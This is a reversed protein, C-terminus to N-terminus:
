VQKEGIATPRRDVAKHLRAPLVSFGQLVNNWALEPEGVDIREVNAVLSELLVEMEMRALHMGACGHPGHGWGVHDRPNRRVDFRDPDTYRREDRNASAFLVLVRSGKPIPVGDAVYDQAAYRTFSRIPSALRVLENVVGPILEPEGRLAAFADPTTGLRWLMQGTALITTDLAPAVYDIVMAQAEEPSLGGADAAQFLRAAWGDPALTERRLGYVYRRLDLMRPLSAFWRANIGGLINFTAAAWRLMNARGAANLGVLEAVVTVPLHSAFRAMADFEGGSALEAVLANAERELRPRLDKLRGPTMPRMLAERRRVHVDGDSTLTIPNTMRNIVSNAAVGRGSVLFSDARLATRVDDFRGIAWMRRRPLWVASGLDRIQRYAPDPDRLHARSGLDGAFVPRIAM